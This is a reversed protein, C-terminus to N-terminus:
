LTGFYQNLIWGVKFLEICPKLDWYQCRYWIYTKPKLIPLLQDKQRTTDPTHNYWGYWYQIYMITDFLIEFWPQITGDRIQSYNIQNYEDQFLKNIIIGEIYSLAKM